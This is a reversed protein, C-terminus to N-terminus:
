DASAASAKVWKASCPEAGSRNEDQDCRFGSVMKELDLALGSLHQCAKAAEQTSAASEQILHSIQDMNQNVQEAASSQETTATAIHTIMEGVQEAMKIIQQLSKGAEVTSNVGDEVQRTGAVMV